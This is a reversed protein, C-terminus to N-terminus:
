PRGQRGAGGAGPLRCWGSGTDWTGRSAFPRRTVIEVTLPDLARVTEVEVLHSALGPRIRLEDDFETLAEFVNALVVTTLSENQLHPDLGVPASHIAISLSGSPKGCGAAGALFVGVALAVVGRGM